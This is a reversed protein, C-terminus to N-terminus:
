NIQIKELFKKNRMLIKKKKKFTWDSGSQIRGERTTILYLAKLSWRM